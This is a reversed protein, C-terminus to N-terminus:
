PAPLVDKHDREIAAATELIVDVPARMSVLHVHVCLQISIHCLISTFPSSPDGQPIAHQGRLM